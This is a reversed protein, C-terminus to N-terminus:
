YISGNNKEQTILRLSEKEVLKDVLATMPLDVKASLLKLSRRTKKWIKLTQLEKMNSM